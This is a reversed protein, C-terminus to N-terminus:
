INSELSNSVENQILKYKFRDFKSIITQIEVKQILINGLKMMPNEVLFYFLVASLQTLMLVCALASIRREFRYNRLILTIAMPHWLYVGFSFKGIKKLLFNQGFVRTFDNPAGILMFFLLISFKIGPHNADKILNIDAKYYPSFHTIGYWTMLYSVMCLILRMIKHKFVNKWESTWEEYKFYLLAVVSGSYFVSFRPWLKNSIAIELDNQNIRLYSAFLFYTLGVSPALLLFWFKKSYHFVLCILPIIFYYKIEIPITWLHNFGPSELTILGFWSNFRTYIGKVCNPGIKILTVFIFFPIYIRFLRRIFYKFIIELIENFNKSKNFDKIMRFTLLFSSLVFFGLVGIFYGAKIFWKFDGPDGYVPVTHHLTVTLACFGRYGDLFDFRDTVKKQSDELLLKVVNFVFTVCNMFRIQVAKLTM